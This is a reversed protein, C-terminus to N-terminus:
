AGRHQWEYIDYVLRMCSKAKRVYGAEELKDAIRALRDKAENAESLLRDFEERNKKM